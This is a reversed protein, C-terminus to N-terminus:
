FVQFTNRDVRTEDAPSFFPALVLPLRSGQATRCDIRSSNFLSASSIFPRARPILAANSSSLTSCRNEITVLTMGSNSDCYGFTGTLTFGLTDGLRELVAPYGSMAILM